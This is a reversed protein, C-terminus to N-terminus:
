ADTAPREPAGAGAAGSQAYGFRLWSWSRENSVKRENPKRQVRCGDGDEEVHSARVHRQCLGPTDDRSMHSGRWAEDGLCDVETTSEPSDGLDWAHWM